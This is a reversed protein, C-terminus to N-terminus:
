ILEKENIGFAACQVVSMKLYKCYKFLVAKSPYRTSLIISTHYMIFLDLNRSFKFLDM